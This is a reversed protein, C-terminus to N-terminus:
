KKRKDELKLKSLSIDIRNMDRPFLTAQKVNPLGALKQTLRELGTACGGEPPMGYKFAQLYFSFNERKYGWKDLNQLLQEYNNIRQGGTTIEVGRFLLDFSKTTQPDQEDPYTYFPRKGTPYHTVFVFESNLHKAAYECLLKEQEPDLDPAGQAIIKYEKKLLEQAESLKFTPIKKPVEPVSVGLLETERTASSKLLNALHEMWDRMLDMIDTHDKIFGFELDLSVYENLHRTTSHPEARYVGTVTYVREFVGVMIQKYLQPSQALYAKHDFYDLRFVNAGGEAAQAVIKPAQFETFGRSELFDRFSKVVLGQIKFVAQNKPSRLTLPQHDLYTELNYDADLEFPLTEATSLVTIKQAELEVTGTALKPNILKEPRKNIKGEIAVVFESRINQAIKHAERSTKPNVVVQLIGSADRVDLFILKGHDRRVAVWGCVLVSEGIAKPTERNLTRQM